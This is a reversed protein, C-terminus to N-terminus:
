DAAPADRSVEELILVLVRRIQVRALPPLQAWVEPPGVCDESPPLPPPAPAPARPAPLPPLPLVLQRVIPRSLRAAPETPTPTLERTLRRM